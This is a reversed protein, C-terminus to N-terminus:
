GFDGYQGAHGHYQASPGRNSRVLTSDFIVDEETIEDRPDTRPVVVSAINSASLLPPM